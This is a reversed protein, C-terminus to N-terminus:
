ILDIIKSIYQSEMERMKKAEKDTKDKYNMFHLIGHIVVRALENKFEIENQKANDEIREVSIYIDGSIVNGESYQFGIVDTYYDHQLYEKNIQLLYEDDCFIYNIDGIKYGENAASEKLWNKWARPKSIKFDTEYFFSIM